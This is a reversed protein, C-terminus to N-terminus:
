RSPDPAERALPRVDFAYEPLDGWAFPDGLLRLEAELAAALQPLAM